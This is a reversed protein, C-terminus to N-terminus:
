PKRWLTLSKVVVWASVVVAAALAGCAIPLSVREPIWGRAEALCLAALMVQMSGLVIAVRRRMRDVSAIM